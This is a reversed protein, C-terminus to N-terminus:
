NLFLSFVFVNVIIIILVPTRFGLPKNLAPWDGAFECIVLYFGLTQLAVKAMRWADVDPRFCSGDHRCTAWVGQAGLNISWVLVWLFPWLTCWGRCGCKCCDEHRFIVYPHIRRTLLNEVYWGTFTNRLNFQTTDNYIRIPIAKTRETPALGRYVESQQFVPQYTVSDPGPEWDRTKGLSYAEHL